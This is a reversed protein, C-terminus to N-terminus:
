GSLLQTVNTMNSLRKLGLEEDVFYPYYYGKGRLTLPLNGSLIGM